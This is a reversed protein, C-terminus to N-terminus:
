YFQHLYLLFFLSIMIFKMNIVCIKIPFCPSNCSVQSSSQLVCSIIVFLHSVHFVHTTFCPHFFFSIAHNLQPFSCIENSASSFTFVIVVILPYHLLYYYHTWYM